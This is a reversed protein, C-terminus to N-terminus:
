GQKKIGWILDTQNQISANRQVLKCTLRVLHPVRNWWTYGLVLHVHDRTEKIRNQNRAIRWRSTESQSKAKELRHVDTPGLSVKENPRPHLIPSRVGLNTTKEIKAFCIETASENCKKKKTEFLPQCLDHSIWSSEEVQAHRDEM